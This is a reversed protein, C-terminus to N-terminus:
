VRHHPPSQPVVQGRDFFVHQEAPKWLKPTEFNSLLHYFLCYGLYFRDYSLNINAQVIM